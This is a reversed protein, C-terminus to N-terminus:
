KRAIAQRSSSLLRKPFPIKGSPLFVRNENGIRVKKLERTQGGGVGGWVRVLKPIEEVHVRKAPLFGRARELKTKSTM